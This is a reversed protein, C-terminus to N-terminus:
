IEDIPDAELTFTRQVPNLPAEVRAGTSDILTLTVTNEGMRLGRLLYPQWEDVVFTAAPPLVDNSPSEDEPAKQDAVEVKVKYEDGLEVNVPYFDLLITEADRGVYTGKPRSYFLMPEEIPARRVVGGGDFDAYVAQHAADTKISEHYSRSLFTLIYHSGDEIDHEFTPEYVAVYPENDVILHIHQGKASNACMTQGAEPSQVGLEYTDADIDFDLREETYTWGNLTADPFDTGPEKPELTIEPENDAILDNEVDAAPAEPNGCAALLLLAAPSLFRLPSM